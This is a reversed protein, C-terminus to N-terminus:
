SVLCNPDLLTGELLRHGCKSIKGKQHAAQVDCSINLAPILGM